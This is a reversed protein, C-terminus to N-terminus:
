IRGRKKRVIEEQIFQYEEIKEEGDKNNRTEITMFMFRVKRWIRMKDDHWFADTFTREINEILYMNDYLYSSKVFLNNIRFSHIKM